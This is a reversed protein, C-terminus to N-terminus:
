FTRKSQRPSTEGQQAHNAEGKKTNNPNQTTTPTITKYPLKYKKGYKILKQDNTALETKLQKWAQAIVADAISPWHGDKEKVFIEPEDLILKYAKLLDNLTLPIITLKKIKFLPEYNFAINTYSKKLNNILELGAGPNRGGESELKYAPYAMEHLSIAHIIVNRNKVLRAVPKHYKSNVFVLGWLAVTDLLVAESL